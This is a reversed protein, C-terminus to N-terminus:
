KVGGKIKGEAQLSIIAQERIKSQILDEQIKKMQAEQMKQQRIVERAIKEEETLKILGRVKIYNPITEVMQKIQKNDKTLFKGSHLPQYVRDAITPKYEENILTLLSKEQTVQAELEAITDNDVLVIEHKDKDYSGFPHPVKDFDGGNGYAPHDPAQYAAIIQKTDRDLLLFIWMDEGSATVYRQQVYCTYSANYFSINAVYSTGMTGKSSEYFVAVSNGGATAAKFQPYFGYEGGPLTQDSWTNAAVSVEGTTTKLMTTIVANAKISGNDNLAVALRTKVDTMSGAPDTGLETEIATVEDYPSNFLAAVLKTVGNVIASFNKIAGPFSAAM